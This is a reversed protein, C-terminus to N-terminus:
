TAIPLRLSEFLHEMTSDFEARRSAADHFDICYHQVVTDFLLGHFAFVPADLHFRLPSM